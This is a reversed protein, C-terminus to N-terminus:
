YCIEGTTTNYFLGVFGSEAGKSRIPKVYFANANLCTHSAGTANIQITNSPFVDRFGSPLPPPQDLYYGQFGSLTGICVSNNGVGRAGAQNGLCVANYGVKNYHTTLSAQTDTYAFGDGSGHGMVVSYEGIGNRACFAGIGISSIGSDGNYMSDRGICISYLGRGGLTNTTGALTGISIVDDLSASSSQQGAMWGINIARQGTKGQSAAYEGALFGINVDGINSGVRATSYGINVSYAGSGAVTNRNTDNGVSVSGAGTLEGAYSGVAVSYAGATTRNAAYGVSTSRLGSNNDACVGGLATSASGANTQGANVGVAVADNNPTNECAGSGVATIYNSVNTRGASVGVATSFQALTPSFLPLANTGLAVSGNGLSQQIVDLFTKKGGINNQNTTLDVFGTGAGSIEDDVYKKNALDVDSVPIISTQPIATFTKTASIIQSTAKSVLNSAVDDVYQKNTLSQSTNPVNACTPTDTFTKIGSTITQNTTLDVFTGILHNDVYAKNALNDNATPAVSCTPLNNFNIDGTDTEIVMPYSAGGNGSATASDKALM